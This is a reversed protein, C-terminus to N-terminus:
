DAVLNTLSNKCFFFEIESSVAEYTADLAFKMATANACCETFVCLAAHEHSLSEVFNLIAIRAITIFSPSCTMCKSINKNSSSQQFIFLYTYSKDPGFNQM